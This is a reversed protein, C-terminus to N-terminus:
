WKTIHLEIAPVNPNKVSPKYQLNGNQVRDTVLLHQIIEKRLCVGNSDM